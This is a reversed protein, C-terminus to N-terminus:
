NKGVVLRLLSRAANAFAAPDQAAQDLMDIRASIVRPDDLSSVLEASRDEM